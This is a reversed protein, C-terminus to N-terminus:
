DSEYDDDIITDLINDDNLSIEDFIENILDDVGSDNLFINNRKDLVSIYNDINDDILIEKNVSINKIYSRLDDYSNAIYNVYASPWVKDNFEYWDKFSTWFKYDYLIVIKDDMENERLINIINLFSIISKDDPLFLLIKNNECIELENSNDGNYMGLKLLDDNISIGFYIINM